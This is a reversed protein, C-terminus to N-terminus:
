KWSKNFALSISLYYRSDKTKKEIKQIEVSRVDPNLKLNTIFDVIADEQYSYLDIKAVVESTKKDQAFNFTQFYIAEPLSHIVSNLNDVYKPETQYFSKIYKLRLQLSTYDDEFEQTSNLIAKQQRLIESLDSNKRDLWFRSLFALIVILETFIIVVRGVTSVWKLFRAIFTNSNDENPLLSIEKKSPM